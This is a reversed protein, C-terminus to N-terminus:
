TSRWTRDVHSSAAVRAGGEGEREKEREREGNEGQVAGGGGM